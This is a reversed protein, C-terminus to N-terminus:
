RRCSKIFSTVLSSYDREGERRPRFREVVERQVHPTQASLYDFARDDMPYQRRFQDISSSSGGRYGGYDGERGRYDGGKRGFDSGKGGGKGENIRSNMLRVYSTVAGSYDSDGERRPQFSSLVAEQVAESAQELFDFARDDMPYRSRFSRLRSSGGYGRDSYGRQSDSYSRVSLSDSYGSGRQNSGKLFGTLQRSFDSEDANRPNFNHLADIQADPSSSCLYDFAREDM